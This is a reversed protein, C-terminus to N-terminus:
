RRLGMRALLADVAAYPDTKRSVVADVLRDLEGDALSALMSDTFRERAMELLQFRIREAERALFRSDEALFARHSEIHKM